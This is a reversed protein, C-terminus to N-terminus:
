LLVRAREIEAARRARLKVDLWSRMHANLAQEIVSAPRRARRELKPLLTECV